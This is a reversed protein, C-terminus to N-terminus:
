GESGEGKSDTGGSECGGGALWKVEIVHVSFDVIENQLNTAGYLTCNVVDSASSDFQIASKRM